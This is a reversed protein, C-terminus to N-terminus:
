GEVPRPATVREDPPDPRMDICIGRTAISSGWRAYHCMPAACETRQHLYGFRHGPPQRDPDARLALPM